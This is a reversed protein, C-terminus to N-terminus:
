PSIVGLFLQYADGAYVQYLVNTGYLEPVLPRIELYYTGAQLTPLFEFIGIGLDSSAFQGIKQQAGNYLNVNFAAGGDLSILSLMPAGSPTVTFMVWDVDGQCLNHTQAITLPVASEIDIDSSDYVDPVCGALLQTTAEATETYSETNGSTDVARMRFRYRTGPTGIFWAQRLNGSIGTGWNQWASWTNGSGSNQQYQIDFRAIDNQPDAATWSLRIATTRMEAPLANMQSTPTVRDPELDWLVKGIATGSANKAQVYLASGDIEGYLLPHLIISWGDSGNSDTGVKVWSGNTWDPGHWYFEVQTVPKGDYDEATVVVEFPVSPIQKPNAPSLIEISRPKRAQVLNLKLDYFYNLGGAGPHDWAKVKLYYTGSRQLTYTLLPDTEDGLVEDDNEAIVSRKDSDLLLVLADLASGKVQADIDISVPQGAIGEFRYFDIDNQPCILAGTVTSGMQIPSAFDPSNRDNDACGAVPAVTNVAIDDVAWGFGANYQTDIVNFHFRIRITKGAFAALSLSPRQLWVQSPFQKDDSLQYLDTIKGQADIVQVRRQDWYVNGDEVDAFYKFQLYHTAGTPISIPPSTLDGGRWPVGPSPLPAYDEGNNYMWVQTAPRGGTELSARQWFGTATWDNSGSEVDDFFPTNRAPLNPPSANVVTFSGLTNNTGASNRATVLWNYSGAALTGIPISTERTVTWTDTRGPGSLVVDFSTAGAGGNWALILSDQTTPSTGDLKPGVATLFPEDPPMSRLLVQLGSVRDAGIRNDALNVDNSEFTEIRGEPIVQSVDDGLDFLIAQVNKGVQISAATNDGVSGLEETSYVKDRIEFKKCAGRFDPEAYLAVQNDNPACAPAPPVQISGCGFNKILQIVGPSAVVQSGERDYVRVLLSFPGEPVNAACLDIDKLFIGGSGPTINDITRWTDNWNALVQIRTVEINDVATGGVTMVQTTLLQRNIPTIVNGSPPHAPTNGSRFRNDDPTGRIGDPGPNCESGYSPFSTAESCTRPRGGNIAVDDYVFDTSYGWEWNSRTPTIFVHFHLHHGSSAGTNDVDGIYEGQMVQAGVVRLHAPISDYAMHYYIQYTTPITSQDELALFNTCNHDNNACGVRFSKVTGGKSALIPFMTGDAFDYAYRCTEPCSKYTLVHGISGSLRKEVGASWPLKYGTFVQVSQPDIVQAEEGYRMLIDETLLEAPLSKVQKSFDPATQMTLQWSEAITPDSRSENRAISLGPEVAIMAKSLPDQLALYLLAVTGDQSYEIRDVVVDYIMFGLVQARDQEVAKKFAERLAEDMGSQWDRLSRSAASGTTEASCILGLILLIIMTKLTVWSRNM